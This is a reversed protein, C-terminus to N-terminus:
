QVVCDSGEDKELVRNRLRRVAEKLAAPPMWAFCLRFFGPQAAHCDHGPTLIIHCDDCV